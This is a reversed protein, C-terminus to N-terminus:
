RLKYRGGSGATRSTPASVPRKNRPKQPIQAAQRAPVPDDSWDLYGMQEDVYDLFEDSGPQLGRSQAVKAASMAIEYRGPTLLDSKHERAGNRCM